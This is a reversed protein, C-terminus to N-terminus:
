EDFHTRFILYAASENVKMRQVYVIPLVAFWLIKKAIWSIMCLRANLLIMGLLSSAIKALRGIPIGSEAAKL